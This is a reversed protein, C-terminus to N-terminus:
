QKSKSPKKGVYQSLFKSSLMDAKERGNVFSKKQNETMTLMVSDSRMNLTEGAHFGVGLWFARREAYSFKKCKKNNM